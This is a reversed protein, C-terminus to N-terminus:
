ATGATSFFHIFVSKKESEQLYEMDPIAIGEKPNEDTRFDTRLPDSQKMSFIAKETERNEKKEM